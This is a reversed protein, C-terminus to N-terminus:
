QGEKCRFNVWSHRFHVRVVLITWLQGGSLVLFKPREDPPQWLELEPVGGGLRGDDGEHAGEEVEEVDWDEPGDKDHVEDCEEADRHLSLDLVHDSVSINREGEALWLELPFFLASDGVSLGL